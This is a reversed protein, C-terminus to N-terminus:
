YRWVLGLLSVAVMPQSLMLQFSARRDLSLLGGIATVINLDTAIEAPSM